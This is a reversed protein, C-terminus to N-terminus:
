KKRNSARTDSNSSARTDSNSANKKSRKGGKAGVRTGHQKGNPRKKTTSAHAPPEPSDEEEEEKEEGQEEEEMAGEEDSFGEPCEPVTDGLKSLPVRMAPPTPNLMSLYSELLDSPDSALERQYRSARSKKVTIDDTSYNMVNSADHFEKTIGEKWALDWESAITSKKPMSTLKRLYGLQTARTPAGKDFVMAHLRTNGPSGYHGSHFLANSRVVFSGFPIFLWDMVFVKKVPDPVAIRLFSGERSLPMDVVYGAQM